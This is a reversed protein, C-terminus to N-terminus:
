RSVYERPLDHGRGHEARRTDKGHRDEKYLIQKMKEHFAARAVPMMGQRMLVRDCIALLEERQEPTLGTKRLHRWAPHLDAGSRLRAFDAFAASSKM